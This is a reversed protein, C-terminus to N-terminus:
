QTFKQRKGPVAINLSPKRKYACTDAITERQKSSDCPDYRTKKRPSEGLELIETDGTDRTMKQTSKIPGVAVLANSSISKLVVKGSALKNHNAYPNVNMLRSSNEKEIKIKVNKVGKEFSKEPPKSMVRQDKAADLTLSNDKQCGFQIKPDRDGKSRSAALINMEPQLKTEANKSTDTKANTPKKTIINVTSVMDIGMYSISKCQAAEHKKLHVLSFYSKNCYQCQLPRINYHTQGRLHMALTHKQAYSRECKNCPYKNDLSQLEALYKKIETNKLDEEDYDYNGGERIVKFSLVINSQPESAHLLHVHKEGLLRNRFYKNCITCEYHWEISSKKIKTKTKLTQFFSISLNINVSRPLHNPPSSGRWM